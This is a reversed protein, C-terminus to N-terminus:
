DLKLKKGDEDTLIIDLGHLLNMAEPLSFKTKKLTNHQPNIIYNRANTFDAQTLNTHMFISGAFDTETFVAGTFDTEGFDVERAGCKVLKIKQLKLGFFTSYNLTCDEFDILRFFGGKEWMAETWNIGVMQCREFTTETFRSSPVTVMSLNCDVFRCERFHCENFQVNSFNCRTFTVENIEKFNLVADTYDQNKFEAAEIIDASLLNTL